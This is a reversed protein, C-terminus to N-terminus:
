GHPPPNAIQPFARVGARRADTLQAAKGPKVRWRYMAAFM